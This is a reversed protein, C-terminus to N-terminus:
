GNSHIEMAQFLFTEVTNFMFNCKQIQISEPDYPEILNAGKLIFPM